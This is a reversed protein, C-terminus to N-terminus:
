WKKLLLFVDLLSTQKKAQEKPTQEKIHKLVKNYEKNFLEIMKNNNLNDGTFAKYKNQIDEFLGQKVDDSKIIDIAGTTTTKYRRKTYDILEKLTSELSPKLFYDITIQETAKQQEKIAKLQEKYAKEFVAQM